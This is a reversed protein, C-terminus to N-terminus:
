ARCYLVFHGTPVECTNECTGLSRACQTTARALENNTSEDNGRATGYGREEEVGRAQGGSDLVIFAVSETPLLRLGTEAM